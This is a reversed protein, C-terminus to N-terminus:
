DLGASGIKIEVQNVFSKGKGKEGEPGADEGEEGEEGMECECGELSILTLRNGADLRLEAMAEFTDGEKTGEPIEFGEPTPFSTM